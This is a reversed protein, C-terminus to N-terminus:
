GKKGELSDLERRRMMHRREAVNFVQRRVEIHSERRKEKKKKSM